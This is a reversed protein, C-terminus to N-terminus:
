HSERLDVGWIRWAYQDASSAKPDASRRLMVSGARNSIRGTKRGIVRLKAAVLVYQQRDAVRIDTPEGAVADYTSYPAFSAKFDNVSGRTDAGQNGWLLYAGRYDGQKILNFYRVVIARAARASASTKPEAGLMGGTAATALNATDTHSANSGQSTCAACALLSPMLVFRM